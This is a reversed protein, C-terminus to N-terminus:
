EIKMVELVGHIAPEGPTPQAQASYYYVVPDGVLLKVITGIIPGLADIFSYRYLLKRPKIYFSQNSALITEFEKNKGASTKSDSRISFLTRSDPETGDSAWIWGVAASDENRPVPCSALFHGDARYGRFTVWGKCIDSPYTTSRTQELMGYGHLERQPEDPLKLVTQAKSWRVLMSYEYFRHKRTYRAQPPKAELAASDLTIAITAGALMVSIYTKDQQLSIQSPGISLVPNPNCSYTWNQNNYKRSVKWPKKADGLVLTNCAANRDGLGLNTVVFRIQVFTGDDHQATLAYVQTFSKDNCFIPQLAHTLAPSQATKPHLPLAALFLYTLLHRLLPNM